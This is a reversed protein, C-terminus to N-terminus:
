LKISWVYGDHLEVKLDNEKAFENVAQCVGPFGEPNYDHGSLTGGERIVRSYMAIDEKVAEYSHDADIFVLDFKLGGNSLELVLPFAEKSNGRFLSCRPGTIRNKTFEYLSDYDIQNDFFGGEYIVFSDICILSAITTKLIASAHGGFATGVEIVNAYGNKNIISPIVHYYLDGWGRQAEFSLREIKSIEIEM